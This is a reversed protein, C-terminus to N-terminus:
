KVTSNQEFENALQSWYQLKDQDFSELQQAIELASQIHKFAHDYQQCNDYAIAMNYHITALSEHNDPLSKISIDLAHKLSQISDIYNKMAGQVTALNSYAVVLDPHYPSLYQLRLDIVKQYNTLSNEFDGEAQQIFALNALHYCHIIPDYEEGHHLQLYINLAFECYKRAQTLDGKNVYLTSLNAYTTVCHKDVENESVLLRRIENAKEYHIIAQDFDNKCQYILGLHHHVYTLFVQNDPFSRLLTEYVELAGDYDGMKLCLQGVKDVNFVSPVYIESRLQQLVENLQEDKDNTLQLEILWLRTEIQRIDIIRFITHMSFLIENEDPYYSVGHLSAFPSEIQSTSDLNLRFLIGVHEPNDRASRAFMLSVDYDSSTSLFNNFSLLGGINQQLRQFENNIMGQGRYVTHFLQNQSNTQQLKILELHLDRIFFGMLFLTTIDQMRLAQNVTSYIFSEKTYWWVSSHKKYMKQFYDISKNDKNENRYIDIFSNIYDDDYEFEIDILMEKILQSYMFSSNLDNSILKNSENPQTFTQFSILENSHQYIDRNIKGIPNNIRRLKTWKTHDNIIDDCIFYIRKIQIFSDLLSLLEKEFPESIVLYIIENENIDTLFDICSNLDNFTYISHVSHRVEEIANHIDENRKNTKIWCLINRPITIQHKRDNQSM